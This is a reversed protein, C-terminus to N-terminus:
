RSIACHSIYPEFGNRLLFSATTSVQQLYRCPAQFASNGYESNQLDINLFTKVEHLLCIPFLIAKLNMECPNQRQDLSHHSRMQERSVLSFLSLMKVPAMTLTDRKFSRIMTELIRPANTSIHRQKGDIVPIYVFLQIESAQWCDRPISLLEHRVAYVANWLLCYIATEPAGCFHACIPRRFVRFCLFRFDYIPVIIQARTLVRDFETASISFWCHHNWLLAGGIAKFFLSARCKWLCMGSYTTSHFSRTWFKKVVSMVLLIVLFITQFIRLHSVLSLLVTLRLGIFWM